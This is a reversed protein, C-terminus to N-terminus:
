QINEWAAVAARIAAKVEPDPVTDIGEYIEDGVSVMVGRAPDEYLHVLRNTLPGSSIMDQLIDEIQMVISKSGSAPVAEPIAAPQAPPRAAPKRTTAKNVAAPASPQALEAKEAPTPNVIPGGPAEMQASSNGISM